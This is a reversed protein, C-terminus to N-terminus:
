AGGDRRGKGAYRLASLTLRPTTNPPKEPPAPQKDTKQRATIWARAAAKSAFVQLLMKEDLRLVRRLWSTPVPQARGMGELIPIAGREAAARAAHEGLGFAKGAVPWLPVALKTMIEKRIQDDTM